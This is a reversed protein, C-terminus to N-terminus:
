FMDMLFVADVGQAGDTGNVPGGKGGQAFVPHRINFHGTNVFQDAIGQNERTLLFPLLGSFQVKVLVPPPILHTFIHDHCSKGNKDQRTRTGRRTCCPWRFGPPAWVPVTLSLGFGLFFADQIFILHSGVVHREPHISLNRQGPHLCFICRLFRCSRQSSGTWRPFNRDPSGHLCPWTRHNRDCRHMPLARNSPIGCLGWPSQIIFFLLLLKRFTAPIAAMPNPAAGAIFKAADARLARGM